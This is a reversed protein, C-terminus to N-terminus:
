VKKVLIVVKDVVSLLNWSDNLAEELDQQNDVANICRFKMQKGDIIPTNSPIPPQGVGARKSM